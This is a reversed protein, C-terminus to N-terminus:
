RSRTERIEEPALPRVSKSFMRASAACGNPALPVDASAACAITEIETLGLADIDCALCM